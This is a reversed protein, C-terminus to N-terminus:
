RKIQGSLGLREKILEKLENARKEHWAKFFASSDEEDECYHKSVYFSSTEVMLFHNREAMELLHEHVNNHPRCTGVVIKASGYSFVNKYTKELVPSWYDGGTVVAVIPAACEAKDSFYAVWDGLGDKSLDPVPDKRKGLKWVQHYPCLRKFVTDSALDRILQKGTKTKGHNAVASIAILLNESDKTM